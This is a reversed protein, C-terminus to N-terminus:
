LLLAWNSACPGHKRLAVPCVGYGSRGALRRAGGTTRAARVFQAASLHRTGGLQSPEVVEAQFGEIPETLIVGNVQSSCDRRVIKARFAVVDYRDMMVTADM